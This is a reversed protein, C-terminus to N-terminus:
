HIIQTHNRCDRIYGLVVADYYDIHYQYDSLEESHPGPCDCESYHVKCLPCFPEGCMPCVFCDDAYVVVVHDVGNITLIM